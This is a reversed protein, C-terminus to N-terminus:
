SLQCLLALDARLLYLMCSLMEDVDGIRNLEHVFLTVFRFYFRLLVSLSKRLLVRHSFFFSLLSSKPVSDINSVEIRLGVYHLDGIELKKRILM